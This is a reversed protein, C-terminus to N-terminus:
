SQRLRAAGLARFADVRGFGYRADQGAEGLERATGALLDTLLFARDPGALTERIDTASVLLALAGAVHPTAMSTGNFSAWGGGPVSSRVAVGPATIDPKLYVFPLLSPDLFRSEAVVHTGGGSFGAVEDRLDTAGAAFAFVDTGGAVGDLVLAMAVRAGPAVGIWSGSADGGVITGAVHTGHRHSDRPASGPVPSGLRDFEAWGALKGQLDPHEADIGTDLVGVTVGAGRAGYAGWTALAGIANVGWSSGAEELRPPDDVELIDPVPLPRNAHIDAIGPLTAAVGALDDRPMRLLVAHSTWFTNVPTPAGGEDAVRLARRVRNDELLSRAAAAFGHPNSSPRPTSVPEQLLELGSGALRRQRAKRVALHSIWDNGAEPAALRVIVEPERETHEDLIREVQERLQLSAM